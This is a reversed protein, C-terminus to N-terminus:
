VINLCRRQQILWVALHWISFWIKSDFTESLRRQRWGHRHLTVGCLSAHSTARHHSSQHRQPELTGFFWLTLHNYLAGSNLVSSRFKSDSFYNQVQAGQSNLSFKDRFRLYSCSSCAAHLQIAGSLHCFWFALCTPFGNEAQFVSEFHEPNFRQLMCSGHGLVLWATTSHRAALTRDPRM